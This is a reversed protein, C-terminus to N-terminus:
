WEAQGYQGDNYACWSRNSFLNQVPACVCLLSLSPCFPLAHAFAHMIACALFPTLTLSVLGSSCVFLLFVFCFAICHICCWVTQIGVTCVTGLLKWWGSRKKDNRLWMWITGCLMSWTICGGGMRGSWGDMRGLGSGVSVLSLGALYDMLGAMWGM